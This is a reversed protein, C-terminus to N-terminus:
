FFVTNLLGQKDIIGYYYFGDNYRKKELGIEKFYQSLRNKFAGQKDVEINLMKNKSIHEHLISAKVRSSIDTNITFNDKFYNIIIDKERALNSQKNTCKNTYTIYDSAQKLNLNLEAIDTFSKKNFNNKVYNIINENSTDITFLKIFGYEPHNELIDNLKNVYNVDNRNSIDLVLSTLYDLSVIIILKKNTIQDITILYDNSDLKNNFLVQKHEIDCCNSGFEPKLSNYDSNYALIEDKKEDYDIKNLEILQILENPLTLNYSNLSFKTQVFTKEKDEKEKENDKDKDQEISYYNCDFFVPNKYTFENVNLNNITTINNFLINNDKNSNNIYMLNDLYYNKFNKLKNKLNLSEIISPLYDNLYNNFNDTSINNNILSYLENSLISNPITINSKDIEFYLNCEGYWDEIIKLKDSSINIVARFTDNDFNLFIIEKNNNKNFKNRIKYSNSSCYEYSDDNFMCSDEDYQNTIDKIDLNCIKQNLLKENENTLAHSSINFFDQRNNTTEDFPEIIPESRIQLNPNKLSPPLSYKSSNNLPENITTKKKNIEERRNRRLEEIIPKPMNMEELLENIDKKIPNAIIPKGFLDRTSNTLNPRKNNKNGVILAKAAKKGCDILAIEKENLLRRERAMILGREMKRTIINPTYGKKSDEKKDHIDM